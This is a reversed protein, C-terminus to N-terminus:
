PKSCLKFELRWGGNMTKMVCIMTHSNIKWAILFQTPKRPHIFNLAQLVMFPLKHRPGDRNLLFKAIPWIDQPTVETNSIKTEWREHTKIHAMRRIRKTVWNVATKCARDRTEQWLKRAETYTEIASRSRCPGCLFCLEIALVTAYGLLEDCLVGNRSGNPASNM